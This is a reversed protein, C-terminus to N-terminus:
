FGSIGSFLGMESLRTEIKQVTKRGLLYQERLDPPNIEHADDIKPPHLSSCFILPNVFVKRPKAIAQASQAPAGTSAFESSTPAFSRKANESLSVIYLWRIALEAQEKV